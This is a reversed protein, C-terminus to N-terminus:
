EVTLQHRIRDLTALGIGKVELLEDVTVFAGQQERYDIIARAKSPGIGKLERSLTDVDATNINVKATVAAVAAAPAETQAQVPFALPLAALSAFLLPVLKKKMMISEKDTQHGADFAGTVGYAEALGFAAKAHLVLSELESKSLM